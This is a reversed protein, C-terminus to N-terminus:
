IVHFALSWGHEMYCEISKPPCVITYKKGFLPTLMSTNVIHKIRVPNISLACHHLVYGHQLHLNSGSNITNRMHEGLLASNNLSFTCGMGKMSTCSKYKANFLRTGGDKNFALLASSIRPYIHFFYTWTKIDVVVKYLM